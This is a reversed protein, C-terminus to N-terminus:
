GWLGRWAGARQAAEEWPFFLIIFYFALCENEYLINQQRPQPSLGGFAIGLGAPSLSLCASVGASVALGRHIWM